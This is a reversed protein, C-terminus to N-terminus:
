AAVPEAPQQSRVWDLFAGKFSANGVHEIEHGTAAWVKGGLERWRVCFSVDETLRGREPIDLRDFARIIRKLGKKAMYEIDRAGLIRTDSLEPWKELMAAIVDRRILTCGMGVAEVEIFHGNRVPWQAPIGAIPIGSGVWTVPDERHRYLAGVLPENLALIDLVLDPSFGMDDDVFLMHSAPCTDYWLTLAINRAEAPDCISGTGILCRVGHQMLTVVVHPVTMFTATSVKERYAPVMILVSPADLRESVHVGGRTFVPDALGWKNIDAGLPDSERQMPPEPAPTLGDAAM